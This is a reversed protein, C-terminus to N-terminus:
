WDPDEGIGVFQSPYGTSMSHAYSVVVGGGKLGISKSCHLKNLWKSTINHNTTGFAWISVINVFGALGEGAPNAQTFWVAFEVESAFAWCDFIVRTNKSRETLIEVKAQLDRIM